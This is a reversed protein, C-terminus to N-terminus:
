ARRGAIAETNAHREGGSFLMDYITLLSCSLILRGPMNRTRSSNQRPTVSIAKYGPNGPLGPSNWLSPPTHRPPRFYGNGGPGGSQPGLHRLEKWRNRNEKETIVFTEPSKRCGIGLFDTEKFNYKAQDYRTMAKGCNEKISRQMLDINLYNRLVSHKLTTKSKKDSFTKSLGSMLGAYSYSGDEKFGESRKIALVGMNNYSTVKNRNNKFVLINFYDL